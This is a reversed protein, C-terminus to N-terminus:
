ALYLDLVQGCTRRAAARFSSNEGAKGGTRFALARKM